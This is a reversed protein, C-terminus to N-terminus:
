IRRSADDLFEKYKNAKDIDQQTNDKNGARLRYKLINGKCYGRFEEPTLVKKIVDIAETDEWLMYHSPKNVVLQYDEVRESQLKPYQREVVNVPDTM